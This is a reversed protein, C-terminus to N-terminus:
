YVLEIDGTSCHFGSSSADRFSINILLASENIEASGTSSLLGKTIRSVWSLQHDDVDKLCLSPQSSASTLRGRVHVWVWIQRQYRYSVLALRRCEGGALGM